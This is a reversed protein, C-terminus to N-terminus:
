CLGRLKAAVRVDVEAEAEVEVVEAEEMAEVGVVAEEVVEMAAGLSSTESGAVAEEVATAVDVLISRPIDRATGYITYPPRSSSFCNGM